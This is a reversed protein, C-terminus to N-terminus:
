PPGEKPATQKMLDVGSAKQALIRGILEVLYAGAEVAAIGEKHINSLVTRRAEPQGVRADYCLYASMSEATALGPREGILTCVVKAGLAQAVVDQVPVRGYRIFFTKGLKVGAARLGDELVPLIRELNAEIAKSSLGDSVIIQVDAGPTAFTKLQAIAGDDLQRGLDPRTIHQNKDQCRTQIVPLGLRELLAGDMPSFVSDMATAHDARLTLLTRTKLRPGARGVGIRAPTSRIMRELAERLREDEPTVLPQRRVQPDTIDVPERGGSPEFATPSPDEQRGGAAQLREQDLVQAVVRDVLLDLQAQNLM